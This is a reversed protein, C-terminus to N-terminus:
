MIWTGYDKRMRFSLVFRFTRVAGCNVFDDQTLFFPKALRQRTKTESSLKNEMVSFSNKRLIADDNDANRTKKKM